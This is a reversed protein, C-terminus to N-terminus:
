DAHFATASLSSVEDLTCYQSATSGSRAARQTQTFQRLAVRHNARDSPLVDKSFAVLTQDLFCANEQSQERFSLIRRVRLKSSSPLAQLVYDKLTLVHDYFRGIASFSTAHQDPKKIVTNNVTQKLKKTVHQAPPAELRKRKAM